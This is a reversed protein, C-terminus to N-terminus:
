EMDRTDIYDNLTMGDTRKMQNKTQSRVVESETDPIILRRVRVRPVLNGVTSLVVM